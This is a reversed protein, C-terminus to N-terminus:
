SNGHKQRTLSHKDSYFYFYMPRNIYHETKPDVSDAWRKDEGYEGEFVGDRALETRIPNLHSVNRYWGKEDESWEDYRLSHYTPKNKEGDRYSQVQFGVYDRDLLPYISDIFDHAVLDDDDVFSIYEGSANDLCWQRKTGVDGTKSNVLIEVDKDKIQYGLMGKIRNFELNREPVTLICISWKM